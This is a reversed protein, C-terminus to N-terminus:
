LQYSPIYRSKFSSYGEPLKVSGQAQIQQPKGEQVHHAGGKQVNLIILCGTRKDKRYYDEEEITYEEPILDLLRPQTIEDKRNKDRLHQKGQTFLNGVLFKIKLYEAM